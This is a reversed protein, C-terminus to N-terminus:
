AWADVRGQPTRQDDRTRAEQENSTEPSQEVPRATVAENQSPTRMEQQTQPYLPALSSQQTSPNTNIM